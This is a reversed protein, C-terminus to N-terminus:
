AEASKLAVCFRAAGAKTANGTVVVQPVRQSAYSRAQFLFEAADEQSGFKAVLAKGPNATCYELAEDVAQFVDGPIDTLPMRERRSTKDVATLDIAM